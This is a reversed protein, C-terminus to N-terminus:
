SSKYRRGRQATTREYDFKMVPVGYGCSTSTQTVDIEIVQRQPLALDAAEHKLLAESLSSEEIPVAKGHGYMRVIAANEEEFSCVMVTTPGGSQTHRATENGSGVYDLYAVKNPGVVHLPVEGKPSM